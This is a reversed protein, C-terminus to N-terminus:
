PQLGITWVMDPESTFPHQAVFYAPVSKIAKIADERTVNGKAKANVSMSLAKFWLIRERTKSRLHWQFSKRATPDGSAAQRELEDVKGIADEAHKISASSLEQRRQQSSAAAAAQALALAAYEYKLIIHNAHLKSDPITKLQLSIKEGAEEVDRALSARADEPYTKTSEYNGRLVDWALKQTWVDNDEPSYKTGSQPEVGWM